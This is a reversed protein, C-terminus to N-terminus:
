NQNQFYVDLNDPKEIETNGISLFESTMSYNFENKNHKGKFEFKSRLPMNNNDIEITYIADSYKLDYESLDTYTLIAKAFKDLEKQLPGSNLYFTIKKGENSSEISSKKVNKREVKLSDTIFSKLADDKTKNYKIRMTMSNSYLVGDEYYLESLISIGGSDYTVSGKAIIDEGDYIKNLESTTSIKLIAGKTTLSAAAKSKITVSGASEILKNSKNYLSLAGGNSSCSSFIFAIILTIIVISKKM